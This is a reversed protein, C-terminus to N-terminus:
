DDGDGRRASEVGIGPFRSKFIWFGGDIKNLTVKRRSTSQGIPKGSMTETAARKIDEDIEFLLLTLPSSRWPEVPSRATRFMVTFLFLISGVVTLVPLTLWWWEITIGQVYATGNFNSRPMSNTSRIINSMSTAVRQIWESPDGSGAWMADTADSSALQLNTTLNVTGNLPIGRVPNSLSSFLGMLALGAFNDVSFNTCSGPESINQVRMTYNDLTGTAPTETDHFSSVIRDTQNGSRVSTEYYNVCMWLACESANMMNGFRAYQSGYNYPAGMMDFRALYLRDKVSANWHQGNSYMTQFGVNIRYADASTFNALQFVSGSPMTFNCSALDCSTHNPTIPACDGCVALSPTVPWTCNGSPCYAQPSDVKSAM